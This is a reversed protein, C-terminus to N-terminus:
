AAQQQRNHQVTDMQQQRYKHSATCAQVAAVTMRLMLTHSACHYRESHCGPKRIRQTQYRNHRSYESQPVQNPQPFVFGVTSSPDPDICTKGNDAKAQHSSQLSQYAFSGGTWLKRPM